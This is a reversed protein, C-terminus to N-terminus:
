DDTPGRQAALQHIAALMEAHQTDNQDLRKLIALQSQNLVHLERIEEEATRNIAFDAESRLRDRSEQRNQSMMIVPAQIAALCSLILNLFIFPMADPARGTLWVLLTNSGMWLMLFGAFLGIFRWSGGFAALRDAVRDGRSMQEAHYEHVPRHHYWHM